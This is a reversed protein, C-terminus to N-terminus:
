DVVTGVLVQYRLSPDSPDTNVNAFWGATAASSMSIRQGDPAPCQVTTDALPVSEDTANPVAVVTVHLTGEGTCAAFMDVSETLGRLVAARGVGDFNEDSAALEWHSEELGGFVETGRKPLTAVPTATPTVPQSAATTPSTTPTADAPAPSPSPSPTGCAALLILPALISARRLITM